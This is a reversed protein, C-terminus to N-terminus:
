SYERSRKLGRTGSKEYSGYCVVYRAICHWREQLYATCSDDLSVQGEATLEEHVLTSLKRGECGMWQIMWSIDGLTQQEFALLPARSQFDQFLRVTDAIYWENKPSGSRAARLCIPSIDSYDDHGSWVPMIDFDILNCTPSEGWSDKATKSIQKFLARIYSLKDRRTIQKAEAIFTELNADGLGMTKCFLAKREPYANKLRHTKALFSPGDWVCGDLGIWV